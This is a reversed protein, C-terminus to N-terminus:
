KMCTYGVVTFGNHQLIRVGLNRELKDSVILHVQKESIDRFQRTLYAVPLDVSGEVPSNSSMTYDRVDVIVASNNAQNHQARPVGMVPFYRRYISIFLIIVALGCFFNM